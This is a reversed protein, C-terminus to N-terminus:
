RCCLTRGCMPAIWTYDSLQSWLGPLMQDLVKTVYELDIDHGILWGEPKLKPAWAAIDARLFSARHDADIFVFDLTGDPILEAAPITTMRILRVRNGYAGLREAMRRYLSDWKRTDLANYIAYGSDGKAKEIQEYNGYADVCILRLTPHNKLLYFSTAGRRVGLEAGSTWGHEAVLASIIEYRMAGEHWAPEPNFDATFTIQGDPLFKELFEKAPVNQSMSPLEVRGVQIPAPTIAPLDFVDIARLTKEPTTIASIEMPLQEETEMQLEDSM